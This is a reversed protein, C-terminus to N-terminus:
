LTEASWSIKLPEDRGVLMWGPQPAEQRRSRLDTTLSERAPM